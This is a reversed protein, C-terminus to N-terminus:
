DRLDGGSSSGGATNLPGDAYGRVLARGEEPWLNGRSGRAEKKKEIRCIREGKLGPKTERVVSTPPSGEAYEPVREVIGEEGLPRYFKRTRSGRQDEAMGPVVVAKKEQKQISRWGRKQRKQARPSDKKPNVPHGGRLSRGEGKERVRLTISMAHRRGERRTDYLERVSRIRM